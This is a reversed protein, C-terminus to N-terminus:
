IFLITSTEFLYFDVIYIIFLIKIIIYSIYKVFIMALINLLVENNMVSFM